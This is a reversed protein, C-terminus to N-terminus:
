RPASALITEAANKAANTSKSGFVRQFYEERTKKYRRSDSQATSIISSIRNKSKTNLTPGLDFITGLQEIDDPHIQDKKAYHILKERSWKESEIILQPCDYFLSEEATSNADSIVLDSIAYLNSAKLHRTDLAINKRTSMIESLSKFMAKIDKDPKMFIRPHPRILLNFDDSVQEALPIAWEDMSGVKWNTPAYLILPLSPDKLQKSLLTDKSLEPHEQYSSFPLFGSIEYTFKPTDIHRELMQQMRPGILFLHDFTNLTEAVAPTLWAYTGHFTMAKWADLKNMTETYLSGTIVQDAKNLIYNGSSIPIRSCKESRFNPHLGRFARLTSRRTTIFTGGTLKQIEALHQVSQFMRSYFVINEM